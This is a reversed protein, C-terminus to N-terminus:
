DQKTTLGMMKVLFESIDVTYLDNENKRVTLVMTKEKGFSMNKYAEELMDPLKEAFEKQIQKNIEEQTGQYEGRNVKKKAQASEEKALAQLKEIVDTEQYRITVRYENENVEEASEVEYKLNAFIQKTIETCAEQEEKELTLGSAIVNNVFNRVMEEHQEEAKEKTLGRTMKIANEVDGELIQACVADVYRRADFGGFLRFCVLILLGISVVVAGIVVGINLKKKKM